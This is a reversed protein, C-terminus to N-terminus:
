AGCLPPDRDTSALRTQTPQGFGRNQALSVQRSGFRGRERVERCALSIQALEDLCGAAALAALQEGQRLIQAAYEPHEDRVAALRALEEEAPLRPRFLQLAAVTAPARTQVSCRTAANRATGGLAAVM